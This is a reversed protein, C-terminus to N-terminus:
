KLYKDVTITYNAASVDFLAKGNLKYLRPNLFGLAPLGKMFRQDNILSLMGGVVPTSAQIPLCHMHSAILWLFCVNLALSKLYTGVTAPTAPPSHLHSCETFVFM